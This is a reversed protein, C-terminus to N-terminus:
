PLPATNSTPTADLTSRVEVNGGVEITRNPRILVENHCTLYIVQRTSSIEEISRAVRPARDPDFNVLVDDMVLPLSEQQTALHEVLAVRMALYLQEGTGRSLGSVPVRKGDDARVVADLGSESLRDFGSYEGDTWAVFLAEARALVAPRHKAEYHGRTARLLEAAIRRVLWGRADAAVAGREDALRQRIDSTDAEAALQRVQERREGTAAVLADRASEVQAIEEGLALREAEFAAPDLTELAAAVAMREAAAVLGTLADEAQQCAAELRERERTRAHRAALAAADAVGFTLLLDAHERKANAATEDAEREATGAADRQRALDERARFATRANALEQRLLEVLVDAHDDPAIGLEGALRVVGETWTGRERETKADGRNLEDLEDLAGRATELKAVLATAADRDLGAAFGTTALFAAWREAGKAVEARVQEDAAVADAAVQDRQALDEATRDRDRKVRRRIEAGARIRGAEARLPELGEASPSGALELVSWRAALRAELNRLEPAEAHEPPAPPIRLRRALLVFTAAAGAVGAAAVLLGVPPEVLAMFLLGALLAIASSAGLVVPLGRRSTPLPPPPNAAIRARLADAVALDREIERGDADLEDARAEDVASTALLDRELEVLRDRLRKADEVATHATAAPGATARAPADLDATAHQAIRRRLAALDTARLRAEDWGADAVADDVNRRLAVARRRREDLDGQRSRWNGASTVAADIEASRDILDMRVTAAALMTDLEDRAVRMSAATETALAAAKGLAAERTLDDATVAPEDPLGALARRMDAARQWPVRASLVLAVHDRRARLKTLEGDREALDRELQELDHRLTGYEAPLDRARLAHELREIEALRGNVAPVSGRAKWLADREADIGTEVKLVDAVVGISAGYIRDAVEESTLRSVDRLEDQGFAFISEFVHKTVGGVISAVARDPNAADVGDIRVSLRQAAGTIPDGHRTIEFVRGDDTVGAITGGRRGGRVLPYRDKVLGFLIAHLFQHVTTKGTGNAGRILTLGPALLLTTDEARGFGDIHIREIRM